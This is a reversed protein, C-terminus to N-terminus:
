YLSNINKSFSYEEIYNCFSEYRNEENLCFDKILEIKEELSVNSILILKIVLYIYKEERHSYNSLNLCLVESLSKEMKEGEERLNYM